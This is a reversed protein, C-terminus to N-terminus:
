QGRKKGEDIRIRYTLGGIREEGRRTDIVLLADEKQPKPARAPARLVLRVLVPKGEPARIGRLRGQRETLRIAPERARQLATDRGEPLNKLREPERVKFGEIREFWGKAIREDVHLDIDFGPPLRRADFVVDFPEMPKRPDPYVFFRLARVQSLAVVIDFFNRFARNNIRNTEVANPPAPAVIGVGVCWHDGTPIPVVWPVVATATAQNSGAPGLVPIRYSAIYTFNGDDPDGDDNPDFGSIGITGVDAFYFKVEVNDVARGGLNRVRAYLHNTSLAVPNDETGDDNNDVWIDTSTWVASTGTISLDYAAAGPYALSVAALANVRGFGYAMDPGASGLDVATERIIYRLEYPLLAPDKDLLLAAVGAAHPSAM